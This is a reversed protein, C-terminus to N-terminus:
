PFERSKTGLIARYECFFVNRCVLLLGLYPQMQYFGQRNKQFLFLHM